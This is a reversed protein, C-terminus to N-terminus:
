SRMTRRAGAGAPTAGASTPVGSPIWRQKLLGLHVARAIADSRNVVDLKRYIHAMHTKITNVSVVFRDALETNTLRTPLLTLLELERDTLRDVLRDALEGTEFVDVRDSVNELVADHILPSLGDTLNAIRRITVPGAQVFVAVLGDDEALELAESLLADARADMGVTASCWSALILGRVRALPELADAVDAFRRVLDQAAELHGLTLEAAAKEFLVSSTLVPDGNLLRAARDPSGHLRLDRSRKALLFDAVIPPPSGAPQGPVQDSARFDDFAGFAGFEAFAVWSLLDRGNAHARIRGESWAAAAHEHEARELSALSTALHAEATAPHHWNNMERALAFAESASEVARRTRGCWADLLALSGLASIRWVSYGAGDTTLATELWRRAEPLNGALFHGRGKAIMAITTLTDRDPLQAPTPSDGLADITALARDAYVISAAPRPRWQVLAALFTQACALQGRTIMPRAAVARLQDEAKSAAGNMGTLIGKLLLVDVRDSIVSEPIA